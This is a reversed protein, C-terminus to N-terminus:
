FMPGQKGATSLEEIDFKPFGMDPLQPMGGFGGLMKSSSSMSSSSTMSSSSFSSMKSSTSGRSVASSGNGSMLSGGMKMGDMMKKMMDDMELSMGGGGFGSDGFGLPM